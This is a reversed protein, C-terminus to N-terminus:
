ILAAEDIEPSALGSITTSPYGIEPLKAVTFGLSM